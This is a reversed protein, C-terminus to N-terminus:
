PEWRCMPRQGTEMVTCEGRQVIAQVGHRATLGGIIPTPGPGFDDCGGDSSVHSRSHVRLTSVAAQTAPCKSTSSHYIRPGPLAPLPDGLHFTCAEVAVSGNGLTDPISVFSWAMTFQADAPPYQCNTNGIALFPPAPINPGEITNQALCIGACCAILCTALNLRSM